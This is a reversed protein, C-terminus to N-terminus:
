AILLKHSHEDMFSRLKELYVNTNHKGFWPQEGDRYFACQTGALSDRWVSNPMGLHSYKRNFFQVHTDTWVAGYPLMLRQADRVACTQTKLLLEWHELLGSERLTHPM